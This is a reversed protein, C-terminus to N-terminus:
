SDGCPPQLRVVFIELIRADWTKYPMKTRFSALAQERSPWFDRRKLAIEKYTEILKTPDWYEDPPILMPDVLIVSEFLNTFSYAGALISPRVCDFDDGCRLGLNCVVVCMAPGGMSHGVGVLRRKSFDVDIGRGQGTLVINM